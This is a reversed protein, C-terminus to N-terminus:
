RGPLPEVVLSLRFKLREVPDQYIDEKILLVMCFMKRKDNRGRKREKGIIWLIEAGKFLNLSMWLHLPAELTSWQPEQPNPDQIMCGM